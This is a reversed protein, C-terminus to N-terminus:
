GDNLEMKYAIYDPKWNYRELWRGWAKRGYGELHSCGNDKAFREITDQVIPLWEKMRRGGIWDLAMARRGPYEIIRTTIAAVPKTGDTVLWLVFMGAEISQKVDESSFKGGATRIAPALLKEADPWVINLVELPVCGFSLLRSSMDNM